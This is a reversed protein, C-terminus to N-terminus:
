AEETDIAALYETRPRTGLEGLLAYTRPSAKVRAVLSAADNGDGFVIARTPCVAQCATRVDGDRRPRDAVKADIRARAIRQVCYTCKEMVGRTRATVEPNRQAQLPATGTEAYHFFNFRRVKYPCFSSCTRTGICRNYVMQNLGEPGHVTANVPCGMECPAKECHMCPVPQFHTKPNEVPGEWYHDVRLWHMERGMRVQEPGVVPINNEAQCATVCANCGICLDLDIAMAWAQDPYDWEPYLSPHHHAEFGGAAMEAPTMTRALDHGLMTHHHQTVALDATADLKTVRAVEARWPEGAPRVRYADYGLREGVRGVRRRGYGLHLTVTDPAQGPLRFVPGSLRGGAQLEVLVLDGDGVALAAARAPSLGIVTGWTLKTMPKPLEQLWAINALAGDWVTPDPRFVAEVGARAPPAEVAVPAPAVDVAAAETGAVFGDHLARRWANEGDLRDRWTALVHELAQVQVQTGLLTAAIEHVTRGGYLPRVTPQIVTATGDVARADSWAELPHALPLHWGSAAATEDVYLGAHVTVPVDRYLREFDLAGPATYVPNADLVVLTEVAGAAMREVLATLTGTGGAPRAVIPETAVLTTGFAGLAANLRWALAQAAAPQHDGVAVLGRPGARRLREAMEAAWRREVLLLDAAVPGADVDLAEALGTLLTPIQGSAVPRRVAAKAGTLTPTSEAVALFPYDGSEHARRRRASWDAAHRVQDPGPGLLDAELAVVVDAHDLRARVSLERGFALRAAEAALSAGAPEHVYWHMEPFRAQMERLQRVLTPSTVPGTLLALGRGEDAAHRDRLAQAAGLWRNWTAYRNLRRVSQSRDPDYLGLVAAQTFADTASATAPHRRKLPHEPNGDVRVPRGEYVEALVPSAFGEFTVATAYHRPKGATEGPPEVIYPIAEEPPDGCGALGGLLLSAAMVKMVTRRDAAAAVFAAPFEAELWRRFEPDDALQDLSRWLAQGSRGRLRHAFPAAGSM